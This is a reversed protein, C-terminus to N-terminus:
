SSQCRRLLQGHERMTTNDVREVQYTVPQNFESRDTTGEIEDILVRESYTITQGDTRFRGESGGDRYSGDANFTVIADTDCGAQPNNDPNLDAPGWTGVLWQQDVVNSAAPAPSQQAANASSAPSSLRDRKMDFAAKTFLSLFTQGALPFGDEVGAVAQVKEPGCDAGAYAPVARDGADAFEIAIKTSQGQLEDLISWRWIYGRESKEWTVDKANARREMEQILEQLKFGYAITWEDNLAVITLCANAIKSPVKDAGRVADFAKQAQNCATNALLLSLLATTLAVRGASRNFERIKSIM